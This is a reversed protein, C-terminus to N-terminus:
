VIRVAAHEGSGSTRGFMACRDAVDQEDVVYLAALRSAPQTRELRFRAAPMAIALAVAFLLPDPLSTGTDIRAVIAACARACAMTLDRDGQSGHMQVRACRDLSDFEVRVHGMAIGVDVYDIRWPGALAVLLVGVKPSSRPDIGALTYAHRAFVEAKASESLFADTSAREAM